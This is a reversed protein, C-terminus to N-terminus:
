VQLIFLFPLCFFSPNHLTPANCLAVFLQLLHKCAYWPLHYTCSQRVLTNCHQEVTREPSLHFCKASAVTGLCLLFCLGWYFCATQCSNLRLKQWHYCLCVCACVCVSPSGQYAPEFPYAQKFIVCLHASYRSLHAM